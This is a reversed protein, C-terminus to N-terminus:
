LPATKASFGSESSVAHKVATCFLLKNKQFSLREETPQKMVLAVLICLDTWHIFIWEQISNNFGYWDANFARVTLWQNVTFSWFSSSTAGELWWSTTWVLVAWQLPLHQHVESKGIWVYAVDSRRLSQIQNWLLRYLNQSGQNSCPQYELSCFEWALLSAIKGSAELGVANYAESQRM